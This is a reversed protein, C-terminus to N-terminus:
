LKKHIPVINSTSPTRRAPRRGPKKCRREPVFSSSFVAGAAALLPLEEQVSNTENGGCWRARRM